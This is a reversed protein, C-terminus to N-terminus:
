VTGLRVRLAGIGNREFLRVPIALAEGGTRCGPYTWVATGATHSIGRHIRRRCDEAVGEIEAAQGVMSYPPAVIEDPLRTGPASETKQFAGAEGGLAAGACVLAVCWKMRRFRM